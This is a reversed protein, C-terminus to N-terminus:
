TKCIHKGSETIEVKEINGRKGLRNRGGLCTKAVYMGFLYNEVM